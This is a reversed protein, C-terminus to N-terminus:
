RDITLDLLLDNKTDFSSISRTKSKKEGIQAWLDYDVGQALQVFRYGGDETSIASKVATTRNDRLYIVAGKIPTGSKDLVRGKAVRQVPGRSQAAAAPTLLVGAPGVTLGLGLTLAISFRRINM